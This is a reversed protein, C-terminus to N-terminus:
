HSAVPADSLGLRLHAFSDPGIHLWTRFGSLRRCLRGFGFPHRGFNPSMALATVGAWLQSLHFMIPEITRWNVHLISLWMGCMNEDLCTSVLGFYPHIGLIPVLRTDNKQAWLQATWCCLWWSKIGFHGASSHKLHLQISHASPLEKCHWTCFISEFPCIDHSVTTFHNLVYDSGREPPRPCITKSKSGTGAPKTKRAESCWFVPPGFKTCEFWWIFLFLSFHHHYNASFLNNIINFYFM